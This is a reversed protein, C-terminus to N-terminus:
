FAPPPTRVDYRGACAEALADQRLRGTTLGALAAHSTLRVVVFALPVGPHEPPTRVVVAPPAMAPALWADIDRYRAVLAAGTAALLERVETEDFGGRGLSSALIATWPPRPASRVITRVKLDADGAGGTAAARALAGIDRLRPHESAPVGFANALGAWPAGAHTRHREAPDILAIRAAVIRAPAPAVGRALMSAVPDPAALEARTVVHWWRAIRATPATMAAAAEAIASAALATELASADSHACVIPAAHRLALETTPTTM